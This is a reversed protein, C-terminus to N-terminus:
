GEYEQLVKNCWQCRVADGAIFPYEPKHGCQEQLSALQEGQKKYALAVENNCQEQIKSRLTIVSASDLM